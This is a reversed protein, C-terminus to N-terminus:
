IDKKYSNCQAHHRNITTFCQSIYWINYSLSELMIIRLECLIFCMNMKSVKPAEASPTIKPRSLLMFRPKSLFLKLNLFDSFCPLRKSLYFYVQKQISMLKDHDREKERSLVFLLLLAWSRAPTLILHIITSIDLIKLVFFSWPDLDAQESIFYM